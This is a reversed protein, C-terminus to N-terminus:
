SNKFTAVSPSQVIMHSPLANWINVVRNSIIAGLTSCHLKNQNLVM